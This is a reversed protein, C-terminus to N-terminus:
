DQDDQDRDSLFDDRIHDLSEKSNVRIRLYKHLEERFTRELFEKIEQKSQPRNLRRKYFKEFVSTYTLGMMVVYTAALAGAVAETALFGPPFLGVLFTASIELAGTAPVSIATVITQGSIQDIIEIIDDSKYLKAIVKLLGVQSSTMAIVALLPVPFFGAGFCTTAAAAIYKWAVKKKYGINVIQNAVIADSYITPLLEVTKSVLEELGFAKCIPGNYRELPKAAVELIDYAKNFECNRIVDKLKDIDEPSVIDCQSLVIIVPIALGNLENIIDADFGEVRKSAANIVYWILHIQAELGEAQKTEIFDFLNVKFEQEKNAEYGASDYLNIPKRTDVSSHDPTYLKFSQTVPWGADTEAKEVGFVKNILTSKGTGTKGIIAINPVEMEEVIKRLEDDMITM